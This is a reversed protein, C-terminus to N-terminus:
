GEWVLLPVYQHLEHGGVIVDGQSKVWAHAQLPSEDNRAVGIYLHAPLGAGELLVLGTLAQVLCTSGPVYRSAVRIAWGIRDPSAAEAPRARPRNRRVLAVLKRFSFLWLGMRMLGLVTATRILLCRERLSLRAFKRIRKM